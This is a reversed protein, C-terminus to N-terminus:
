PFRTLKLFIQNLSNYTSSAKELFAELSLFCIELTQQLFHSQLNM